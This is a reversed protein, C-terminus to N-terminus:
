EQRWPQLVLDRAVIVRLPFGPRITLTPPIALQQRVIEQAVAGITDQAGDGLAAALKEGEPGCPLRM